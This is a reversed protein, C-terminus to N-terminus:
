SPDRNRREYTARLESRAERDVVSQYEATPINKRKAEEHRLADVQKSKAPSAKRAM